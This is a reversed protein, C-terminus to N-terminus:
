CWAKWSTYSKFFVMETAIQACHITMIRINNSNCSVDCAPLCLALFDLPRGDLLVFLVNLWYFPNMNDLVCFKRTDLVVTKQWTRSCFTRHGCYCIIKSMLPLRSDVIASTLGFTYHRSSFITPHDLNCHHDVNNWCQMIITDCKLVHVIQRRYLCVTIGRGSPTTDGWCRVGRLSESVARIGGELTFRFRKHYMYILEGHM